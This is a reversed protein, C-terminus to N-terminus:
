SLKRLSEGSIRFDFIGEDSKDEIHIDGIFHIGGSFHEQISCFALTVTKITEQTILPFDVPHLIVTM